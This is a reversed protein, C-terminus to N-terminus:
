ETELDSELLDPEDSDSTLQGLYNEQSIVPKGSEKELQDRADGAIKGGM